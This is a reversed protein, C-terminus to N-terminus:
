AMILNRFSCNNRSVDFEKAPMVHTETHLRMKEEQRKWRTVKSFTLLNKRLIIKCCNVFVHASIGSVSVLASRKDFETVWM